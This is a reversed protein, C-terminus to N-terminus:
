LFISLTTWASHNLWIHINVRGAISAPLIRGEYVARNMLLQLEVRTPIIIQPDSRALFSRLRNTNGWRAQPHTLSFPWPLLTYIDREVKMAEKHQTQRPLKSISPSLASLHVITSKVVSSIRLVTRSLCFRNSRYYLDQTGQHWSGWNINAHEPLLNKSKTSYKFPM